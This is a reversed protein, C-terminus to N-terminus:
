MQIQNPTSTNQYKRVEPSLYLFGDLIKNLIVPINEVVETKLMYGHVGLSMAEKLLSPNSFQTFLITKLSPCSHKIERILDLGSIEPMCVDVIMLDFSMSELSLRFEGPSSFTYLKVNLHNSFLIQFGQLVISQDDLVAINLLSKTHLV